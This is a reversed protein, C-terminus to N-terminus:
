LENIINLFDANVSKMLLVNYSNCPVIVQSIERAKGQVLM